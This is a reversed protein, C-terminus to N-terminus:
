NVKGGSKESIDQMARLFQQPEIYGSLRLSIKGGADFFLLTPTAWIQFNRCFEKESVSQNIGLTSIGSIERNGLLDIEIIEFHGQLYERVERVGLTRHIFKACYYCNNQHVFILLQKNHVAAERVDEGINLFSTKFWNPIEFPTPTPQEAALTCNLFIALFWIRM